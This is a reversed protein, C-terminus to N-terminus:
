SLEEAFLRELRDCVMEAEDLTMILAPRIKLVNGFGYRSTRLM